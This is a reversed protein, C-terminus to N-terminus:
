QRHHRPVVYTLMGVKARPVLITDNGVVDNTSVTPVASISTCHRMQMQEREVVEENRRIACWNFVDSAITRWGGLNM